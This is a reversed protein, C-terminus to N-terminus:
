RPPPPGWAPAGSRGHRLPGRWAQDLVTRVGRRGSRDYVLHLLTLLREQPPSADDVVSQAQLLLLAVETRGVGVTERLRVRAPAWVAPLLQEDTASARRRCADLQAGVWWSSARAAGHGIAALLRGRLTLIPEQALAGPRGVAALPLGRRRRLLQGTAGLALLAVTVTVTVPVPGTGALGAPLGAFLACAVLGAAVDHLVLATVAPGCRWLPWDGARARADNLAVAGRVTAVLVAAALLAGSPSLAAPPVVPAWGVGTM